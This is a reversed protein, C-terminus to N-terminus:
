GDTVHSVALGLRRAIREHVAKTSPDVREAFSDVVCLVWPRVDGRAQTNLAGWVLHKFSVVPAWAFWQEREEDDTHSILVRLPKTDMSDPNVIWSADLAKAVLVDVNSAPKQVLSKYKGVGNVARALEKMPGNKIWVRVDDDTGLYSLLRGGIRPDATWQRYLETKAAHTIGTRSKEGGEAYILRTVEMDIHSPIPHKTSM